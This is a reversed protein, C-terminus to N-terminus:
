IFTTTIEQKNCPIAKATQNQSKATENKTGDSLGLFHPGHFHNEKTKKLFSRM